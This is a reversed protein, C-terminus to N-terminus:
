LDGIASGDLPFDRESDTVTAAKGVLKPSTAEVTVGPLPTGQDDVVRGTIKGEPMIQAYLSIGTLLFIILIIATLWSKTKNM